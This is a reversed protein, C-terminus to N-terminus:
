IIKQYHKNESLSSTFIRTYENSFFGMPTFSQKCLSLLISSDTKIRKLYEPIGGVLLYADMVERLGRGELFQATEQISFPQLALEHQSRNYLAKSRVVKEIMFSPSSGCLIVILDKNKRFFNDWAYKLEAILETRYQALWQIEEFYITAIGTATYKAILEFVQGWHKTAVKALWPENVYRALQELVRQRQYAENEGEIGEFKFLHREGFNHELLETKGVRRRGYVILLRAEDNQSALTQLAKCENVRGIFLTSAM